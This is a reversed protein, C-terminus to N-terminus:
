RRAATNLTPLLGMERAKAAAQTRNNVDLKAFINRTHVKVTNLSLYLQAAIVQNTQGQAIHRLVEVERQSLNESQASKAAMQSQTGDPLFAEMLRQTFAPAIGRSFAEHLLRDMPSGEDAFLRVYDEPEALALARELSTFAPTIKGQTRYVLAQLVLIEMMSSVRKGEEAAQLLRDLFRMVEHVTDNERNSHNQAILLRALTIHEFERLYGPADGLSLNGERAWSLSEALRGQMIWIRVKIASLPCSDPLPSRIYLRQAEDLDGLAGVLDAQAKKVRARAIILRYRLVPLQANEALEEGKQLHNSAAELNGQELYLESLVRHLDATDPPIPEGKGTVFHLLEEATGIAERLHGLALSIDALVATTGIADPINGALRLKMTYEAFVQRAAELNGNSWHSLGLLMFAQGRRIHDKESFLELAKRANLVTDPINGFAQAIYARGLSVAAQLTQFQGMDMNAAEGPPSEHHPINTNAAELWRAADTLHTEAAEMDGIGLLAYAYCVNLVPRTRFLSDPLMKVWGLWTLPLLNGEETSPWALQILEAAREFDQAALAHHIAEARLGSCEYWACARLHLSPLHNPQGAMARVQLVDAFLHHYRYWQRRDDLPVVFMNGRELEELMEKSDDQGTVADCLPGCMSGLISTQLLFSREREPLHQLVEEALYDLVFRHSGTFSKIFGAADKQGRMSIAALQLGAIWGETRAELAAIDKTQLNLGMVRNLFEAAESPSFRLDAARLEALQGRARLRALPLPPDERTAIVLHMQQPLHELLFVLADNVPKADIVHYDDLVLFFHDPISSIENLLTTLVFEFQLPQPSELTGLFGDGINIPATKLSYVLNTLFRIPDNDEQDLSLWAVPQGCDFIWESVLTTKGFGAPASILTLKRQRGEDLRAFLQPRRVAEPRINPKFFKTAIIPPKM